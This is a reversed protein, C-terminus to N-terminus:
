AGATAPLGIPFHSARAFLEDASLGSRSLNDALKGIISGYRRRFADYGALLEPAFICRRNSPDLVRLVDEIDVTSLDVGAKHLALELDSLAIMQGPQRLYSDLVESLNVNALLVVGFLGDLHTRLRALARRLSYLIDEYTADALRQLSVKDVHEPAMHAALEGLVSHWEFLASAVSPPVRVDSFLEALGAADAISNLHRGRRKLTDEIVHCSKKWERDPEVTPGALLLGEADTDAALRQPRTIKATVANQPQNVLELVARVNSRFHSLAEREQM